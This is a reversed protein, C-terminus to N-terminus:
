NATILEGLLITNGYYFTSNGKKFTVGKLRISHLFGNGNTTTTVEITGSVNQVGDNAIWEENVEPSSPLIAGCFYADNTIDILATKFLRYTLKNTTNSILGTKPIGLNTIDLLTTDFNQIFLAEIGNNRANYLLNTGSCLHIDAPEFSLPLSTPVTEYDGFNFSEYIQEGSPKSFVLNKFVIRHVYKTIKTAGTTTNPSDYLAITIIQITGSTAIWEETAAPSIPGPSNCINAGSPKGTYARYTVSVSGGIPIVTPTNEATVENNFANLSAPIKIFMAENSTLKYITEGCSNAQVEQFTINQIKVNGDDCGNLLLLFVFLGLIKKM